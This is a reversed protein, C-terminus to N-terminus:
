YGVSGGERWLGRVKAFVAGILPSRRERPMATVLSVPYEHAEIVHRRRRRGLRRPDLLFIWWRRFCLMPIMLLRVHYDLCRLGFESVDPRRLDNVFHATRIEVVRHAYNHRARQGVYAVSELGDLTSDEVGHLVKGHTGVGRMLLARAQDTLNQALPVWVALARNVVRENAHRLGERETHREHVTLAVKARNVVVGGVYVLVGNVEGFVEVAAQVLRFHKRGSKGVQQHVARGANSDAHRRVDRRVIGYLDAVREYVEGIM